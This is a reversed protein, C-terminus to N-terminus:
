TVDGSTDHSPSAMLRPSTRRAASARATGARPTRRRRRRGARRLAAGAVPCRLRRLRLQVIDHDADVRLRLGSHRIRFRLRTVGAPLRPALALM